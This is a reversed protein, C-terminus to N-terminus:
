VLRKWDLPGFVQCERPLLQAGREGEARTGAYKMSESSFLLHQGPPPAPLTQLNDTLNFFAQVTNGADASRGGRILELVSGQEADPLLRAARASFDRLAPWQRRATLLDAYLRRLGARATGEPWSWSLQSAAFTAESQPDPVAGQWAFAAFERQRGERVAQVLRADAFSCFFLFPRNEGYEEGMFLLPLYPSLLLLSAALRRAPPDLLTGFRDGRARNGVQDHNQIAVVFRDGTLDGAPAGHKRDRFPSYTGAYLFPQEMVRALEHAQGFDAYYGQREGTLRTHVAHHFDDGWQADLDHGGRGPPLLLRPDNLDSEAVLHAPRGTQREVAAATEKIERLLHRPGFDYLAHVADLRLGDFHYDELWLRVNDLIFARVPDSGAGDYNLAAGWFSQYRNTFYPGFEGLYNGEPGLHNYVVDLFVALGAAHCADVLQQLGHPGGYSNQPASLFVGDYGWNRGGPFQAVPMLEIATVGLQRLSVLRPIIAAFTGAATFTGVHLEYFVLDERRVGRWSPDTWRFRGTDLVASPGTVGDPQWLSAPDPRLPAGDLRYGYRQGEAIGTQTHQFFGRETPAMPVPQQRDGEILVLELRQARPAWVRWRVSGDPLPVAGCRQRPSDQTTPV